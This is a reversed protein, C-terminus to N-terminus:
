NKKIFVISKYLHIYSLNLEWWTMEGLTKSQYFHDETVNKIEALGCKGNSNVIDLLEKLRDMFETYIYNKDEQSLM